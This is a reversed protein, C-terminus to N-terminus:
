AGKLGARAEDAMQREKGALESEVREWCPSVENGAAVVRNVIGNIRTRTLGTKQAVSSQAVRDVLIRCGLM